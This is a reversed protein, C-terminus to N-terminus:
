NNRLILPLFIRPQALTLSLPETAQSYFKVYGVVRYSRGTVGTTDWNVKKEITAGPLLNNVPATIFQTVSLSDSNQIMFVATGTIPMTGTNIVGMSLEIVDGPALHEQSATLGTLQAGLTGLKVEAVATDIVLGRGDLLEVVLQYDGAAYAQTDWTLDVMATGTMEHLTELPLGGLVQNTGRTRVSPQAVIDQTYGANNIVLGFNVPDGPEYQAPNAKFSDIAVSTKLTSVSLKFKKYYLADGSAAHYYFPYLVINLTTNGNAQEEVSWDFVQDMEPYWGTVTRQAPLATDIEATVVPLSLNGTVVASSRSVLQVDQVRQGAGFDVSVSWVPVPYAGLEALVGGGPIRVVDYGDVQSFELEPLAVGLSTGQPAMTVTLSKDEPASLAAAQTQLRGYKPDGYLNSAFAWLKRHDYGWDLDWVARKVQNLAQGMSEDASWRSYVRRFADSTSESEVSETAGVYAGAGAALFAEAVSMDDSSEYRGTLCAAALVVPNTGGLDYFLNAGVLDWSSVGYCWQHENGHGNYLIVGNDTMKPKTAQMAADWDEDWITWHVPNVDAMEYDMQDAVYNVNDKHRSETGSILLARSRNFGYGPDGRAAHINNELYINLVTLDNGIVRGVVLEPRATEGRTHAYWLDSDHVYDPINPGTIFHEEGVYYSSVIETEGVILVYGQDTENFVPNLAKAWWGDEEILDDLKDSNSYEFLYGLVGNELSALEAMNAFLEEADPHSVSLVGILMSYVRVPNTVIVYDAQRVANDIADQLPLMGYSPDNVIEGPLSYAEADWSDPTRNMVVGVNIKGIYGPVKVEHIIPVVVYSVSYDEGPELTPVNLFEIKVRTHRQTHAATTWESWATKVTYDGSLDNQYVQQLNDINDMIENVSVAIAGANHLDLTIVLTNGERRISREIELMPEGQEVVLTHSEEIQSSGKKGVTKVEYNGEALGGIDGTLTNLLTAPPPTITDKLVGGIWLEISDLAIPTLNDCDVAELGPPVEDAESFGSATCRWEYAAADVSADIMTGAPVSSGAIYLKQGNYPENIWMRLPYTADGSISIDQEVLSFATPHQRYAVCAFHRAGFFSSRTLGLAAPSVYLSYRPFAGSTDASYDTGLLTGDMSCMVRDMYEDDEIEVRVEWFEYFTSPYKQVSLSHIVPPDSGPPDTEFQVAESNVTMGAADACFAMVYYTKGVMLGSLNISHSTIYTGPGAQDQSQNYPSRGYEVRSQCAEDTTWVVRAQTETIDVVDPGTLIEPPTEDCAWTETWENNAESVEAIEDAWDAVVSATMTGSGCTWVYDVYGLGVGGPGVPQLYKDYAVTTVGQKLSVYFGAPATTNGLNHITYGIRGEDAENWATSIVLDPLDAPNVVEVGKYATVAGGCNEATVTIMKSGPDSWQYLQDSANASVSYVHPTQGTAEWTFTVPLTVNYPSAAASYTYPQGSATVMPGSLGVRTIPNTCGPSPDSIHVTHVTSSSGGCHTAVVTLTKVGATAWNLTVAEGYLPDPYDTVQWRVNDPPDADVPFYVVDFSYDVGTLGSIAGNVDISTIPECTPPPAGYEIVLTPPDSTERSHWSGGDVGPASWVRIGYNPLSGEGWSQVINSVDWYTFGGLVSTTPPDGLNDSAPRTNWNVVMEEWEETVVDAYLDNAQPTNSAQANLNFMWRMSLTAQSVSFEAPLSALDFAVLSWQAVGNAASLYTASGYNTSPHASDVETDAVATLEAQRTYYIVLEPPTATNRAQYTRVGTDPVMTRLAIGNRTVSGAQWAQAINTVDFVTWDGPVHAVTPDGLHSTGPLSNWTVTGENWAGLIAQPRMLFADPMVDFSYASLTASIVTADAPLGALDFDMLIWSPYSSQSSLRLEPDAGHNVGPNAQEVWTDKHATLTLVFPTLAGAQPAAPLKSKGPAAAQVLPSDPERELNVSSGSLAPTTVSSIMLVAVLIANLLVQKKIKAMM